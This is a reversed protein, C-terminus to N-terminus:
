QALHSMLKYYRLMQFPKAFEIANGVYTIDVDFSEKGLIKDRVIGGIFYLNKDQLNIISM